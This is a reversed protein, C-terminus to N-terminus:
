LCSSLPPAARDRPFELDTVYSWRTWNVKIQVPGATAPPDLTAASRDGLLAIYANFVGWRSRCTHNPNLNWILVM